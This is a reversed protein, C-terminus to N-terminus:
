NCIQIARSPILVLLNGLAVNFVAQWLSLGATMLGSALTYSPLCVSMGIWLSAINYTTWTRQALSTPALDTNYYKSDVLEARASDTLEYLGGNEKQTYKSM